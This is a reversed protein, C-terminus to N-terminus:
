ILAEQVPPVFTTKIYIQRDRDFELRPKIPPVKINPNAPASKLFYRVGRAFGLTEPRSSIVYGLKKLDNVRAAARITGVIRNLEFSHVGTEGANQLAQLTLETDTMM